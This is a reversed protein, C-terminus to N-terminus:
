EYLLRYKPGGQISSSWVTLFQFLTSGAPPEVGEQYVEGIPNVWNRPKLPETQEPNILISCHLKQVQQEGDRNAQVGRGLPEKGSQM